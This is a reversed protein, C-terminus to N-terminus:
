VQYYFYYSGNRSISFLIHTPKVQSLAKTIYAFSSGLAAIAIGGGLLLDRTMGSASPTTLGKELKDEQSKTFKDVQKKSSIQLNVFLHELRNM